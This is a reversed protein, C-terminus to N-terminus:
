AEALLRSEIVRMRSLAGELMQEIQANLGDPVPAINSGKQADRSGGCMCDVRSEIGTILGHLEEAMSCIRSLRPLPPAGEVARPGTDNYGAVM